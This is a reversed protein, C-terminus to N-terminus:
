ADSGAALGVRLDLYWEFAENPAVVQATGNSIARSLSDYLGISPELAITTRDNFLGEDIWVGLYPVLDPCVSMEMYNGTEEGQLACWGESLVSPAYFKRGDTTMNPSVLSQQDWEYKNGVSLSKGGYVCIMEKVSDPLRIRTKETVQFQPHPVWLFPMNATGRNEVRYRLRVQNASLFSVSRSLRYPICSGDVSCTIARSDAECSWSRSWVEGHDPLTIAQGEGIECCDITPFCEDWGSMDWDCFSSGEEPKRLSRKGADLLWEKGTPKYVLSVIKAGIEPVMELRVEDSELIFSEYGEYYGEYM